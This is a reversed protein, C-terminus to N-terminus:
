GPGEPGPTLPDPDLARLRHLTWRAWTIQRIMRLRGEHISAVLEGITLEDSLRLSEGLLLLGAQADQARLREQELRLREMTEDDQCRPCVAEGFYNSDTEDVRTVFTWGEAEHPPPAAQGCGPCRPILADRLNSM